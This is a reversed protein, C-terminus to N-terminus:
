TAADRRASAFARAPPTRLLGLPILAAVTITLGIAHSTASETGGVFDAINGIVSVVVVVALVIVTGTYRGRWVQLGGSVLLGTAALALATTSMMGFRAKPVDADAGSMYVHAAQAAFWLLALSYGISLSASAIVAAPRRLDMNQQPEALGTGVRRWDAM